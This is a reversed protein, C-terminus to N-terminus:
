FNLSCFGQLAWVFDIASYSFHCLFYFLHDAPENVFVGDQGSTEVLPFGCKEDFSINMTKIFEFRVLFPGPQRIRGGTMNRRVGGQRTKNLSRQLVLVTSRLLQLTLSAASPRPPSPSVLSLSV